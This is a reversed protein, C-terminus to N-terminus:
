ANPETGFRGKFLAKYEEPFKRKMELARGSKDLEDWSMTLLKADESTPAGDTVVDKATTRKPIGALMAKASEHDKEFHGEWAVRVSAEIRGESQAADLLAKSEAKLQEKERNQFVQLAAEADSARKELASIASVADAEKAESSLNLKMLVDKMNTQKTQPEILHATYQSFVGDLGQKEVQSRTFKLEGSTSEFKDVALGLAIAEDADIWHDVGDFYDAKIQEISKGTAMALKKSFNGELSRLLKVSELLQRANGDAGGRPSHIMYFGNEAIHVRTGALAIIAGMSAAIGDIYVDVEGKFSSIFNYILNGEIVSGGNTHIHFDLKTVGMGSVFSLSEAVNRFELYGGGVYGYAKIVAKTGFREVKFM